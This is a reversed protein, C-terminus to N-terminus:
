FLPGTCAGIRASDTGLIIKERLGPTKSLMWYNSHILNYLSGREMYRTVICHSTATVTTGLFQIVSCSDTGLICLWM